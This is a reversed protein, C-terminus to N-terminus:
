HFLSRIYCSGATLKHSFADYVSVKLGSFDISVWTLFKHLSPWTTLPLTRTKTTFNIKCHQMFSFRCVYETHFMLMNPNLSFCWLIPFQTPVNHFLYCAILNVESISWGKKVIIQRWGGGVIKVVGEVAPWFHAIYLILHKAVTVLVSLWQRWLALKHQQGIM